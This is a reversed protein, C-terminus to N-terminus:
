TSSGRAPKFGDRQVADTVQTRVTREADSIPRVENLGSATLGVQGSSRRVKDREAQQEHITKWRREADRGIEVDVTTNVMGGTLVAPASVKIDAKAPCYKCTISDPVPDVMRQIRETIGGCEVDTCLYEYIM